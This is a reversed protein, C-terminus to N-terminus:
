GYKGLKTISPSQVKQPTRPVVGRAKAAGTGHNILFAGGERGERVEGRGREECVDYDDCAQSCLAIVITFM